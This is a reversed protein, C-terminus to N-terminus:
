KKIYKDLKARINAEPHAGILGDVVEGNVFIMMTPISQIAYKSSTVRNEDVNLKAIKFKGKYEDALKDITPGVMRCPGCWEAWCDVLVPIDSKVVEKEFDADHVHLAGM